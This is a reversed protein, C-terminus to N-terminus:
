CPVPATQSLYNQRKEEPNTTYCLGRLSEWPRCKTSVEHEERHKGLAAHLITSDNKNGNKNQMRAIIFIGARVDPRWNVTTTWSLSHHLSSLKVRRVEGTSSVKRQHRLAPPLFTLYLDRWRVKAFCHLRVTIQSMQKKGTWDSQTHSDKPFNLNRDASSRLMIAM